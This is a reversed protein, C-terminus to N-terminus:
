QKLNKGAALRRLQDNWDEADPRLRSFHCGAEDAVARLRDAYIDGQRNADTAAVLACAPRRVLSDIAAATTPSWGGGTSLYLTDSRQGELAALSMADIAAETVCIRSSGVAGFRFLTKAGGTAFGRWDSGREEWGCVQGAANNHAAWMSGLPGERLLKQDIALQIAGDPLCREASLYRWTPSGPRPSNRAHWRTETPAVPGARAPREWRPAATVFGVTEAVLDLAAVFGAAGLHEALSFVDGKADSLPDFWGKGNHIVIVIEGEARRYKVARRTSQKLDIRWGDRELLAGCFVTGRLAEIDRKDM